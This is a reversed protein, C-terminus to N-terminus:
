LPRWTGSRLVLKKWFTWKRVTPGVKGFINTKRDSIMAMSEERGGAQCARM